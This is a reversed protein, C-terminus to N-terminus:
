CRIATELSSVTAQAFSVRDDILEECRFWSVRGDYSAPLKAFMWLNLAEEASDIPRGAGTYAEM